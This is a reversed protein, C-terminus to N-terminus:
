RPRHWVYAASIPRGRHREWQPKLEIWADDILREHMEDLRWGQELAATLQESVLNVHTEIAATPGDPRDFHTPMGTSMIWDPHFSVLVWHAGPRALRWAEAHMASPDPLHEDVLASIVLDYVGDDLGTERVDAEILRQHAGREAALGLMQPTLDVGDIAAVGKSRMWAATRGTGCGLDVAREVRWWDPERLRELLALDMEDVVDDEYRAAWEAYGERAGLTAYGRTDYDAFEAM